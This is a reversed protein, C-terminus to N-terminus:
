EGKFTLVEGSETKVTMVNGDVTVDYTLTAYDSNCVLKSNKYTYTFTQSFTDEGEVVVYQTFEKSYFEWRICNGESDAETTWKEYEMFLDSGSQQSSSCASICFVLFIVTFLIIFKKM